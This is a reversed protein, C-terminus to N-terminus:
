RQECLAEELELRNGGVRHKSRSPVSRFHTVLGQYIRPTDGLVM